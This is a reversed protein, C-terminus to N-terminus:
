ILYILYKPTGVPMDNLMAYPYLSNVDYHYVGTGYPKYVDVAGGTYGVPIDEYIKKTIIPINSVNLFKSRFINMALSSVTPTKEM